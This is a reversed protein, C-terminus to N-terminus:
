IIFNTKEPNVKYYSHLIDNSKSVVPEIILYEQELLYSIFMELNKSYYRIIEHEHLEQTCWSEKERMIELIHHAGEEARSYVLFDGATFIVELRKELAENSTVLEKYLHYMAPDIQQVQEWISIEPYFGSDIVSLGAMYHLSDIVHVYADLYNGANYQEEGERYCRVLKAFQLGYKAHRGDYPYTQMSCRLNQLYENRDFLIKGHFIWDVVKPNTGTQMWKHLTEREITHMAIRQDGVIYHKTEMQRKAKKVINILLLDFTDTKSPFGTKSEVQIIGLTNKKSAREQYIPRLFQEM